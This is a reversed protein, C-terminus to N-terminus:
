RMTLMERMTFWGRRGELWKAAELAGRAFVARDRVEHTFTLSDSPGDFGVVHIGPMSGARTSAVDITRHYGSREMGAKLELATGSPADKKTAHHLEHIWAGYTEQSALLRAAHEVVLQFINMGVSFNAAVLVGIGTRAVLERMAPEHAGWGTTGIVVNMHRAALKPLNRPVADPQTFDIAVDVAGFEGRDIAHDGSDIEVIGAIECGHAEALSEVLKGM